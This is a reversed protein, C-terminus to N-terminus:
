MLSCNPNYNTCGQSSEHFKGTKLLTVYPKITKSGETLERLEREGNIVSDKYLKLYREDTKDLEPFGVAYLGKNCLSSLKNAAGYSRKFEDIYAQRDNHELNECGTHVLAIHQRAVPCFLNEVINALSALEESSSCDMRVVILILNVGHQLYSEIKTRISNLSLHENDRNHAGATDVTVFKFKGYEYSHIEGMGIVSDQAPFEKSDTAIHKAVTYKGARATGLILINRQSGVNEAHVKSVGDSSDRMHPMNQSDKTNYTEGNNDDKHSASNTTLETQSSDM